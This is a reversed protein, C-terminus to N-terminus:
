TEKKGKKKHRGKSQSNKKNKNDWKERKVQSNKIICHQMIYKTTVMSIEANMESYIKLNM